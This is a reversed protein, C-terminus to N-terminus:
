GAHQDDTKWFQYFNFWQYPAQECQASLRNAFRQAYDKLQTERDGRRLELKDAFHEVTFHVRQDKAHYNRYSFMLRVPCGLGKALM